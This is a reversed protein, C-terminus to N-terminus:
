KKSDKKNIRKIEREFDSEFAQDQKVRFRSYEDEALTKAVEHSIKGADTLIGYENFKLFSDLKETWDKMKMPIKRAAQNEAYDLFMSVVRELEKIEKENLYNKAVTVDSKLVKGRPANKWHTLGMNPKASNVRDAILEAATHGTIAWHLKNQVTKFFKM